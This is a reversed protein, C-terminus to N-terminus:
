SLLERWDYIWGLETKFFVEVSPMNQNILM